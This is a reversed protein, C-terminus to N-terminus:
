RALAVVLARLLHRQVVVVRGMAPSSVQGCPGTARFARESAPRSYRETQSTLLKSSIQAVNSASM